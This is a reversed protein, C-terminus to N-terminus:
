GWVIFFFFFGFCGVLGVEGKVCCIRGVWKAEAKGLFSLPGPPPLRPSLFGCPAPPGSGGKGLKSLGPAVQGPAHLPSSGPDPALFKPSDAKWFETAATRESLDWTTSPFFSFFFFFFLFFCCAYSRPGDPRRLLKTLDQM